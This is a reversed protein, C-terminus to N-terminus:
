VSIDGKTSTRASPPNTRENAAISRVVSRLPVLAVFRSQSDFPLQKSSTSLLFGSSGERKAKTERERREKATFWSPKKELVREKRERTGGM